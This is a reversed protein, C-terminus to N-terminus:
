QYRRPSSQSSLPSQKSISVKIMAKNGKFALSLAAIKQTIM